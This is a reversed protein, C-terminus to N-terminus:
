KTSNMILNPVWSTRKKYAFVFTPWPFLVKAAKFNQCFQALILYEHIPHRGFIRTKNPAALWLMTHTRGEGRSSKVSKYYVTRRM